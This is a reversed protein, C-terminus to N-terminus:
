DAPASEFISPYMESLFTLPGPKSILEDVLFTDLLDLVPALVFGAGPILSAGTTALFRVAKGPRGRIVASLRERIPHFQDRIKEDSANGISRLWQRFQQCEQSRSIEILRALDVVQKSDDSLEPLGAITIVRHFAAEQGEPSLQRELFDLKEELVPLDDDRSGSFATYQRMDEIRQNLRGVALLALEIRKHAEEESLNFREAVNSEVSFDTEDIRHVDISFDDPDVLTQLHKTLSRATAVKINSANRELDLHTLELALKGADTPRM